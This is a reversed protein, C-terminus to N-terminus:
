TGWRKRAEEELAVLRAEFEEQERVKREFEMLRAYAGVIQTLVAAAKPEVRGALVDDALTGLRDKLSRVEAGPKARAAKSASRRRADARAPDHAPCYDNGPRV